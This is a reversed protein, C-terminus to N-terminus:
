KNASFPQEGLDGFAIALVTLTGAMHMAGTADVSAAGTFTRVPAKTTYNYHLFHVRGSAPCYWGRIDAIGIYGNIQRCESAGHAGAGGQASVDLTTYSDGTLINWVGVVSAPPAAQATSTAAAALVLTAIPAALRAASKM